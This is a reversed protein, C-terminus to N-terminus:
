IQTILDTVSFHLITLKTEGLRNSFASFLARFFRSTYFFLKTIKKNIKFHFIVKYKPKREQREYREQREKEKLKRREEREKRIKELEEESKEQPKERVKEDKSQRVPEEDNGKAPQDKKPCNKSIHGKQGCVFCDKFSDKNEKYDEYEKRKDLKFYIFLQSM